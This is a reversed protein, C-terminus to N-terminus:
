AEALFPPLAALLRARRHVVAHVLLQAEVHAVEMGREVAPHHDVTISLNERSGPEVQRAALQANHRRARRHTLGALQGGVEPAREVDTDLRGDEVLREARD